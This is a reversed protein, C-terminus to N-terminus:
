WYGIFNPKTNSALTFCDIYEAPLLICSDLYQAQSSNNVVATVPVQWYSALRNAPYLRKDHTKPVTRQPPSTNHFLQHNKCRNANEKGHPCRM